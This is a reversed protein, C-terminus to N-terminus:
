KNIKNTPKGRLELHVLDSWQVRTNQFHRLIYSTSVLSSSPSFQAALSVRLLLPSSNSKYLLVAPRPVWHMSLYISRIYYYIPYIPTHSHLCVAHLSPPATTTTTTALVQYLHLDLPLPVVFLTIMFGSYQNTSFFCPAGYTSHFPYLGCHIQILPAPLCYCYLWGHALTHVLCRISRCLQLSISVM